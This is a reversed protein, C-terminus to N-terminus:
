SQALGRAEALGEVLSRLGALEARLARVSVPGVQRRRGNAAAKLKGAASRPGTAFKWPQNTLAAQRLRERGEPTLGRRKARNAKGAASRAASPKGPNGVGADKAM